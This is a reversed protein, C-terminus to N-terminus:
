STDNSFSQMVDGCPGNSEKYSTKLLDILDTVTEVQFAAHEMALKKFIM